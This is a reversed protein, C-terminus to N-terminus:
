APRRPDLRAHARRELEAWEKFHPLCANMDGTELWADAAGQRCFRRVDCSPCAYRGTPQAEDVTRKLVDWGERVTGRRLDYKPIPFAACLNMEGYPTVAFRSRGCACNILGSCPEDPQPPRYAMFGEDIRCKDEARLRYRLPSVDGDTRPSLDLCYQFKFGYREVLARCAAVEQRNITTVPMRATVPLRADALCHLGALFLAYSGAVGTMQEYTPATAGYISLSVQSVGASQLLAAFSATVRTANTLLQVLLGRVRARELIPEIDPRTAPEGGSFTVHIVGFDAAQDLIACVEETSLEHPLVRHTPNYCHVCRLNCGYTLEFTLGEPRRAAAAHASLSGFFEGAMRRKM